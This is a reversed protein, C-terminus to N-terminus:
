PAFPKAQLLSFGTNYWGYGEKESRSKVGGNKVFVRKSEM